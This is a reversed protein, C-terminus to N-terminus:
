VQRGYGVAVWDAVRTVGLGVSNFFQMRFGSRTQNTVSVYDGSALNRGTVVISPVAAFPTAFMVDLGAAPVSVNNAGETRDPMDIDVTLESVVPRTEGDDLSTLTLRFQFARATYDGVVFPQWESWVPAGNPDDLTTRLEITASWEDSDDAFINGISFVDPWAFIDDSSLVGAVNISASVRSVYVQTLDPSSFEYTGSTHGTAIVLNNNSVSTNNKTGDWTPYQPLSAVANLETLPEALNVFVAPTASMAGTPHEARILFSGRML